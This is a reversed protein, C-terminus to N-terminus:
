KWCILDGLLLSKLLSNRNLWLSRLVDVTVYHYNSHGSLLRMFSFIILTWVDRQLLGAQVVVIAIYHLLYHQLFSLMEFDYFKCKEERNQVIIENNFSFKM